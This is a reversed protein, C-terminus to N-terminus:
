QALKHLLESDETLIKNFNSTLTLKTIKQTQVEKMIILVDALLNDPVQDLVKHIEKKIETTTM